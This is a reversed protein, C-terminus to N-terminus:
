GRIVSSHCRENGKSKRVQLTLQEDKFSWMRNQTSKCDSNAAQLETQAQTLQKRCRWYNLLLEHLEHGEQHALGEFEAEHLQVNELWSGPEWLRLQESTFAQVMSGTSVSCQLKPLEPYLRQRPPKEVEAEVEVEVPVLSPPSSEQDALPLVAPDRLQPSSLVVTSAATISVPQLSADALLEAGGSPQASLLAAVDVSPSPLAPYLATVSSIQPASELLTRSYHGHEAQTLPQDQKIERLESADKHKQSQEQESSESVPLSEAAKSCSTGREQDANHDGQTLATSPAQPLDQPEPPSEEPPLSLPIDTFDVSPLASCEPASAKDCLEAYESAKKVSEIHKHKKDKWHLAFSLDSNIDAHHPM